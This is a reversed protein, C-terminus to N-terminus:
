TRYENELAEALWLQILTQYPIGKRQAIRRIRALHPASIRITIVEKRERHRRLKEALQPDLTLQEPETEELLEVTEHSDFFNRAEEEDKFEPVRRKEAM